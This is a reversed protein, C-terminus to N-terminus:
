SWRKTAYAVVQERASVYGSTYAANKFANLQMEVDAHLRASVYPDLDAQAFTKGGLLAACVQTACRQAAPTCPQPHLSAPPPPIPLWSRKQFRTQRGAARQLGPFAGCLLWCSLM